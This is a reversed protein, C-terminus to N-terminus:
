PPGAVSGWLLIEAVTHYGLEAVAVAAAVKVSRGFADAVLLDAGVSRNCPRRGLVPWVFHRWPLRIHVALLGFSWCKKLCTEGHIGLQVGSM